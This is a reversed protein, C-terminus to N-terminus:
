GENEYGNKHGLTRFAFMNFESYSNPKYEVYENHGHESNSEVWNPILKELGYGLGIEETEPSPRAAIEYIRLQKFSKSFDTEIEKKFTDIFRLIKPDECRLKVIDYKSILVDVRSDCGLLGGDVFTKLLLISQQKTSQRYNKHSINNGDVLLVFNDARKIINFELKALEVNAIVSDYDEGSFDTILLDKKEEQYHNDRLSLHLISDSIGRQTRKTLANSNKSSIRASHCRQEFGILTKSGAFMYGAFVGRQFLHYISTILTTKGSEVSGALVILKTMKAATIEYTKDIELAQGRPLELIDDLIEDTESTHEESILLKENNSELSDAEEQQVENISVEDSM